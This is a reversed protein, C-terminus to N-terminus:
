QIIIRLPIDIGETPLESISFTAVDNEIKLKLLNYFYQQEPTIDPTGTVNVQGAVAMAQNQYIYQSNVWDSQHIVINDVVQRRAFDLRDSIMTFVTNPYMEEWSTSAVNYRLFTGYVPDNTTQTKPDIDTRFWIADQQLLGSYTPGVFIYGQVMKLFLLWNNENTPKVNTNSSTAVYINDEYVVLEGPNYAVGNLWKYRMTLPVGHAGQIGRLGILAWYEENTPPTEMPPQKVALYILNNYVVFNNQEYQINNSYTGARKMNDVLQYWFEAQESLFIPVNQYFMDEIEYIAESLTNIVQAIYAKGQLQQESDNLLELAKTFNGGVVYANFQRRIEADSIQIDQYHLWPLQNPDPM